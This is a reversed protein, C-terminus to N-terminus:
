VVAKAVGLRDRGRQGQLRLLRLGSGKRFEETCVAPPLRVEKFSELLLIQVSISLDSSWLANAIVAGLRSADQSPHPQPTHKERRYGRGLAEPLSGSPSAEQGPGRLGLGPSERPSPSFRRVGGREAKSFVPPGEAKRAGLCSKSRELRQGRVGADTSSGQGRPPVGFGTSEHSGVPEGM